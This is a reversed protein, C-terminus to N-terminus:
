FSQPTSQALVDRKADSLFGLDALTRIICYNTHFIMDMGCGGIVVGNYSKHSRYGLIHLFNNFNYYNQRKYQNNYETNIFRLVRSMGSGSVHEIICFLRNHTVAKIWRQADSYFCEQEYESLKPYEAKIKAMIQQQKTM